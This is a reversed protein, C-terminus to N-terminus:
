AEDVRLLRRSLIIFRAELKAAALGSRIPRVSSTRRNLQRLANALNGVLRRYPEAGIM